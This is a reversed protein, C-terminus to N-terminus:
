TGRSDDFPCENGNPLTLSLDPESVEPLFFELSKVALFRPLYACCCPSVAETPGEIALSSGEIGDRSAMPAANAVVWADHTHYLSGSGHPSGDSLLSVAAALKEKRSRSYSCDLSAATWNGNPTISLGALCSSLVIKSEPICLRGAGGAPHPHLKYEPHITGQISSPGTPTPEPPLAIVRM